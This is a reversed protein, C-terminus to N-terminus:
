RYQFLDSLALKIYIYVAFVSQHMDSSILLLASTKQFVLARYENRTVHMLRNKSHIYQFYFPTVHSNVMTKYHGPGFFIYALNRMGPSISSLPSPVWVM